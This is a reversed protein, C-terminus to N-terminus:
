CPLPAAPSYVPTIAWGGIARWKALLEERPMWIFHDIDNNDLIAAQADDLYVLTVFHCGEPIQYCIGCGRRTKLAWDLFTEDGNTVQAYRIGEEDFIQDLREPGAGDGYERIRDAAANRGQWRLLPVMGAFVCSGSGQDGFWNQTRM